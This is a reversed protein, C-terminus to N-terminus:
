AAPSRWESAARRTGRFMGDHFAYNLRVNRHRMAAEGEAVILKVEVFPERVLKSWSM